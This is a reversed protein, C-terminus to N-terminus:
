LCSFFLQWVEDQLPQRDEMGVVRPEVVHLYALSSHKDALEKVLYTFTPLPDDMRMGQWFKLRARAILGAYAGNTDSWPSLRLATRNEGIM